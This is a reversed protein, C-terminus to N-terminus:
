APVHARLSALAPVRASVMPFVFVGVGVGIWFRKDRLM